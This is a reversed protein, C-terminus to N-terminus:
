LTKLFTLFDSMSGRKGSFPHLSSPLLFDTVLFGEIGAATCGYMDEEEDNGVMLCEAADYGSRRLIETYYAPNPKCFRETEYTTIYDFDDAALGAWALRTLIGVRPFVPNTALTVTMGKERAVRLVEKSHPLATCAGKAKHFNGVYFRDCAEHARVADGGAVQSFSAWFAEENTRTGDNKRMDFLGAKVGGLVTEADYGLPVLEQALAGFYLKIFGNVDMGLLTGDLDFLIHRIM